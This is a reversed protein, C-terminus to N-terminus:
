SETTIRLQATPSILKHGRLWNEFERHLVELDVDFAAELRGEGAPLTNDLASLGTFHRMFFRDLWELPCPRLDGAEEIEVRLRRAFMRGTDPTRTPVAM